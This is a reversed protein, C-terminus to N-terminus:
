GRSQRKNLLYETEHALNKALTDQSTKVLGEFIGKELVLQPVSPGRLKDIPLNLSWAGRSRRESPRIRKFVGRGGQPMRAIFAGPILVPGSPGSYVVGAKTQRAGLRMLSVPWGRAILKAELFKATAPILPLMPRITKQPLRIEKAVARVAQTRATGATRNLARMIATPAKSGLDALARKLQKTDISVTLEPM